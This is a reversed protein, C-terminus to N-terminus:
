ELRPITYIRVNPNDIYYLMRDCSQLVINQIIVNCEHTLMKVAGKTTYSKM